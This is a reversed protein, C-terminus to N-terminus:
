PNAVITTVSASNLNLIIKGDSSTFKLEAPLNPDAYSGSIKSFTGGTEITFDKYLDDFFNDNVDENKPDSNSLIAKAGKDSIRKYFTQDSRRCEIRIKKGPSEPCRM